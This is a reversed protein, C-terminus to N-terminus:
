IIPENQKAFTNTNKGIYGQDFQFNDDAWEM